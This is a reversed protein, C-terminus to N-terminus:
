EFHKLPGRIHDVWIAVFDDYEATGELFNRKAGDRAHPM